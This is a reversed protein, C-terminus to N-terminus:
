FSFASSVTTNINGTPTAFDTANTRIPTPGQEQLLYFGTEQTLVTGDEALIQFNLVDMSLSDFADIEPVNTAIKENQYLYAECSLYYVYNKGLSFFEMDYDVFKIEMLFKTMPDYVLDGEQPRLYNAKAFTAEANAAVGDFQSKVEKEWREKSVVLKYTNQIQLGFKSFMEKQGQFGQADSLYMELPIALNFSSVVDEGLILDNVQMNRPLYFYERGQVQISERVLTNLMNQEHTQNKHFYKNVIAAM